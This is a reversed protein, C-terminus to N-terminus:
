SIAIFHYMRKSKIADLDQKFYQASLTDYCEQWYEVQKKLAKVEEKWDREKDTCEDCLSFRSYHQDIAEEVVDHCTPCVRGYRLRLYMTNVRNYAKHWRDVQRELDDNKQNAQQLLRTLASLTHDKEPLSM